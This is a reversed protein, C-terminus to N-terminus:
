DIYIKVKKSKRYKIKSILVDCKENLEKYDEIEAEKLEIKEPGNVVADLAATIRKYPM